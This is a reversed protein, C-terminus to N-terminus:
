RFQYCKAILYKAISIDSALGIPHWVFVRKVECESPEAFSAVTMCKLLCFSLLTWFSASCSQTHYVPFLLEFVQCQFLFNLEFFSPVSRLFYIVKYFTPESLKLSKKKNFYAFLHILIGTCYFFTWKNKNKGM